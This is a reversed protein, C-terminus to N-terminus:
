RSGFLGLFDGFEESELGLGNRSEEYGGLGMNLTGCEEHAMMAMLDASPTYHGCNAVPSSLTEDQEGLSYTVAEGDKNGMGKEVEMYGEVFGEGMGGGMGGGMGEVDGHEDTEFQEMGTARLFKFGYPLMTRMRTAEAMETFEQEDEDLAPSSTHHVQEMDIGGLICGDARGMNLSPVGMSSDWSMPPASLGVGESPLDMDLKPTPIEIEFSPTPIVTALGQASGNVDNLIADNVSPSLIVTSSQGRSM